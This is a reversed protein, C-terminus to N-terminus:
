PEGKYEMAIGTMGDVAATVATEGLRQELGQFTRSALTRAGTQVAVTGDMNRAVLEKSGAALEVKGAPTIYNGSVLSFQPESEESEEKGVLISVDEALRPLVRRFDIEYEGTWERHPSCALEFEFPTIIPRYFETSDILSNEPCAVLVYADIEMFNAMKAPNLKGMVFSYTKKGAARALTKLRTIVDLYEAVGLTGAVIGITSAEKAKQILFYRKMLYKNINLTERSASGKAPDFTYFSCKNYTMMFNNLARDSSNGIYFVSYNDITKGAGLEFDRGFKQLQQQQEDEKKKEEEELVELVEVVEVVEKKKEECGEKALCCSEAQQQQQETEENRKCTCGGQSCSGGNGQACCAGSSSSSSGGCCGTSRGGSLASTWPAVPAASVNVRSVITHPRHALKEALEAAAHAYTVDYLVLVDAQPDPFLTNVSDACAAIDVPERGFVFLVPIRSTKSLCSPGYHIVLDAGGNHDAAVEDVCCSGYYTDALIFFERGTGERLMLLVQASDALLSDPFQLAIRKYAPNAIIHKVCTDIDYILAVDQQSRAARVTATAARAITDQGDGSLVPAGKCEAM